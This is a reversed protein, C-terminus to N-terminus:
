NRRLARILPAIQRTTSGLPQGRTTKGTQPNEISAWENAMRRQFESETIKGDMYDRLGRMELRKTALRDQLAADFIQRDDLELQVKLERLTGRVFQYRGVPTSGGRNDPHSHMRSQLEDVEGLTMQTLPKSQRAFRGYNFPVDYSSAYGHLRARGEDVGEGRAIQDLLARVPTHNSLAVTQAQRFVKAAARAADSTLKAAAGYGERQSPTPSAEAPKARSASRGAMRAPRNGWSSTVGPASTFKGDAAHYPNFKQQVEALFVEPPYRIGKRLYFSDALREALDWETTTRETM